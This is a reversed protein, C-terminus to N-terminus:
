VLVRAPVVVEVIELEKSLSREARFELIVRVEDSILEPTEAIPLPILSPNCEKLEEYAELMGQIADVIMELAEAREDGQSSCQVAPCHISYGGDEEQELIVIFTQTETQM